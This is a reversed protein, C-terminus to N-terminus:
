QKRNKLKIYESPSVDFKEKFVRNFTSQNNFGAQTYITQMTFTKLKDEKIMKEVYNIRYLNIYSIFNAKGSLKIAESLYKVNTELASALDSLSFGSNLYPQEREFYEEIKKFLEEKREQSIIEHRSTLIEGANPEEQIVELLNVGLKSVKLLYDVMIFLAFMCTVITLVNDFTTGILAMAKPDAYNDPLFFQLIVGVAIGALSLICLLRFSKPPLFIFSGVPILTFFLVPSIKGHQFYVVLYPMTAIMLFATYYGLFPYIAEYAIKKFILLWSFQLLAAVLCLIYFAPPLKIFYYYCSFILFATSFLCLLRRLVVKKHENIIQQANEM